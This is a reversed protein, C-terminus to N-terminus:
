IGVIWTLSRTPKTVFNYEVFGSYYYTKAISLEISQVYHYRISDIELPIPVPSTLLSGPSM